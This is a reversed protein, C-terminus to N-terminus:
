FAVNKKARCNFTRDKIRSCCGLFPYFGARARKVEEPPVFARDRGFARTRGIVDASPETPAGTAERRRDSNAAGREEDTRSLLRARASTPFGVAWFENRGLEGKTKKLKSWEM